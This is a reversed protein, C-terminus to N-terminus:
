RPQRRGVAALRPRIAPRPLIIRRRSRASLADGLLLLVVAALTLGSLATGLRRPATDEFRVLVAHHGAPVTVTIHGLSGHPAIPLEQEIASSDPDLLYARWGPYYAINWSLRFPASAEVDVVESQSTHERSVVSVGRPLAGYDVRSTVEGGAVWVDALPSWAPIERVWVPSGTMEGADHQFRMLSALGVPGEAPPVIEARLSSASGLVVLLALLVGAGRTARGPRALVAGTLVSLALGAFILLRWPFQAPQLLSGLLVWLPAAPELMLFTFVLFSLLFFTRLRSRWGRLPLMLGFLALLLPVLGLQFPFTDRPGPVSVGFGWFPSFLQWLQVFHDRYGYYGSFWQDVRVFRYEAVWPVVFIGSLGIGLGLALGPALAAGLAPRLTAAARRPWGLDALRWLLLAVLYLALWISMQVALGNQSLLLAAYAAATGVITPIRPRTVTAYFGWFLLPLWVMALSEALAARVYVNALHYPLFVYSVGAILGAQPGFFRRACGYMSLGSAVLSLVFVAKVADVLDLGVLHFAEGLISALPGYINFFPYGYGFAFDPSWRPWLVGSRIAVDFEYLFYVHHRADHAGWWYGAQFAPGAAFLSFLVVLLAYAWDVGGSFRGAREKGGSM